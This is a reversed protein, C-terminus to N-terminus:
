KKTCEFRILSSILPDKYIVWLDASNKYVNTFEFLVTRNSKKDYSKLRFGYKTKLDMVLPPYYPIAHAGSYFSIKTEKSKKIKDFDFLIKSGAQPSPLFLRFNGETFVAECDFVPLDEFTNTTSFALSPVLMFIALSYKQM